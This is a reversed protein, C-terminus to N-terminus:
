VDLIRAHWFAEIDSAKKGPQALFRVKIIQGAAVEEYPDWWFVFNPSAPGTRGSGKVVGDVEITIKGEQRCIVYCQLLYVKKLAPVTASILDQVSGPTTLGSSNSQNYSTGSFSVGGGIQKVPVRGDAM